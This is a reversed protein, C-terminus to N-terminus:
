QAALSQFVSYSPKHKGNFFELGSQFGGGFARGDIDEDRVLFWVLMKVRGSNKFTAVAQRLQTAQQTLTVGQWKDPPNTQAGFETIWVLIKRGPFAKNLAAYLRPM